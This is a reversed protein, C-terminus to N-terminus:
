KSYKKLQDIIDALADGVTTVKFQGSKYKDYLDTFDPVKPPTLDDELVEKETYAEFEQTKDLDEFIKNTFEEQKLKFKEPVKYNFCCEFSEELILREQLSLNVNEFFFQLFILEANM